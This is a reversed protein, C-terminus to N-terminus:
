VALRISVCVACTFSVQAHETLRLDSVSDRGKRRSVKKFEIAKEYPAGAPLDVFVVNDAEMEHM